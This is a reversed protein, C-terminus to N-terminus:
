GATSAAYNKVTSTSIVGDASNLWKVQVSFNVARSTTPIDVWGSTVYSAGATLGAVKQGISFAGV